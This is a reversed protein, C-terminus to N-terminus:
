IHILSLEHLIGNDLYATSNIQIENALAFDVLGQKVSQLTQEPTVTEATVSLSCFFLLWYIPYEGLSKLITNIM